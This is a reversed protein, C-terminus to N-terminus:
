IIKEVFTKNWILLLASFGDLFKIVFFSISQELTKTPM